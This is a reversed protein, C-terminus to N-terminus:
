RILKPGFYSPCMLDLFFYYVVLSCSNLLNNWASKKLEKNFPQNLKSKLMVFESDIKGNLHLNNDSIQGIWLFM